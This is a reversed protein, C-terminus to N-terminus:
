QLTQLCGSNPTVVLGPQEGCLLWLASHVDSDSCTVEEAQLGGLSGGLKSFFLEGCPGARGAGMEERGEGGGM